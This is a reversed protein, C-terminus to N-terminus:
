FSHQLHCHSTQQRDNQLCHQEQKFDHQKEQQFDHQQQQLGFFVLSGVHISGKIKM